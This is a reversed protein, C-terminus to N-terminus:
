TRDREALRHALGARSGIDLKRMAATVHRAVTNVSLFLESAIQKNSRGMAIHELIDRQRPTLADESTRETASLSDEAVATGKRATEM